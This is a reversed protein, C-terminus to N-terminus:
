AGEQDQEKRFPRLQSRRIQKDLIKWEVGIAM